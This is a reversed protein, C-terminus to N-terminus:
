SAVENLADMLPVTERLLRRIRAQIIVAQAERETARPKRMGAPLFGGDVTKYIGIPKGDVLVQTFPGYASSLPLTTVKM